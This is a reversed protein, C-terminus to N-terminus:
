IDPVASWCYMTDQKQSLMCFGDGGSGGGEGGGLWDGIGAPAIRALETSSLPGTVHTDGDAVSTTDVM